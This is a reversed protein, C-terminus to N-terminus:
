FSMDISASFVNIRKGGLEIVGSGEVPFFSGWSRQDLKAQSFELKLAANRHFDWRSGITVSHQAGNRSELFANLVAQLPPIASLDADTVPEDEIQRAGVLYLTVPGFRRGVTVQWGRATTTYRNVARRAYEASLLYDGSDWQLGISDFRAYGHEGSLDSAVAAAPSNRLAGDVALFIPDAWPLGFPSEAHGLHLSWQDLHAALNLGLIRKLRATRSQLELTSRGVFPRLEVDYDGIRRRWLLDAGDLDSFPNLGYVEVPPRVWTNAYNIWISDSFLFFASRMRGIRIEVDAVPTLRVFAWALRPEVHRSQDERVIVQVTGDIGHGFSRSAQLGLISDPGFAPSDRGPANIGPRLLAADADSSWVAGLTGFGSVRWDGSDALANGAAIALAAFAIAWAKRM